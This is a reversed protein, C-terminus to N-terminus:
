CIVRCRLYSDISSKILALNRQGMKAVFYQLQGLCIVVDEAFRTLTSVGAFIRLKTDAKPLTSFGITEKECSSIGSPVTSISEHGGGGIGSLSAGDMVILEANSGSFRPISDAADLELRWSSVKGGRKM